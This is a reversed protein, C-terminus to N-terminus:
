NHEYFDKRGERAAGGTEQEELVCWFDMWCLRPSAKGEEQHAEQGRGCAEAHTGM